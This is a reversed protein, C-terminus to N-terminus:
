TPTRMGPPMEEARPEAVDRGRLRVTQGQLRPRRRLHVASAGLCLHSGEFQHTVIGNWHTSIRRWEAKMMTSESVTAWWAWTRCTCGHRHHSGRQRRTSSGETDKLPQHGQSRSKTLDDVTADEHTKALPGIADRGLRSM